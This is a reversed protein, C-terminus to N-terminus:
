RGGGIWGAWTVVVLGAGVLLSMAMIRYVLGLVDRNASARDSYGDYAYEVTADAGETTNSTNYFTVEGSTTNWDYDTGEVLQSGSANLVTENDRFADVSQEPSVAVAASYDVSQTESEAYVHTADSYAAGTALVGVVLLIVVGAYTSINKSM